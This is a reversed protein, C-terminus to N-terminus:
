VPRDVVGNTWVAKLSENIMFKRSQGIKLPRNPGIQIVTTSCSHNLLWFAHVVSELYKSACEVTASFIYPDLGSSM